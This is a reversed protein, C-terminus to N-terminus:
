LYITDSDIYYDCKNCGVRYYIGNPETDEPSSGFPINDEVIEGGCKPCIYHKLLIDERAEFKSIIKVLILLNELDSPTIEKLKNLKELRKHLQDLQVPIQEWVDELLYSIYPEKGFKEVLMECEKVYIKLNQYFSEKFTFNKSIKFYESGTKELWKKYNSSERRIKDLIKKDPIYNDNHEVRHRNEDLPYIIKDWEECSDVSQLKVKIFDWRVKLGYKILTKRDIHCFTEGISLLLGKYYDYIPKVSCRIHYPNNSIIKDYLLLLDEPQFKNNNM